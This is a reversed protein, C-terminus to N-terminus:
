NEETSTNKWLEKQKYIYDELNVKPKWKLLRTATTHDCLTEQAEGPKNNKYIPNINFIKAVENISYNKREEKMFTLM